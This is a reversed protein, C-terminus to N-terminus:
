KPVRRAVWRDKLQEIILCVLLMILYLVAAVIALPWLTMIWWYQRESFAILGEGRRNNLYPRKKYWKYRHYHCSVAVFIWIVALLTLM